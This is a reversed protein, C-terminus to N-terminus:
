VRSPAPVAGASRLHIRAPLRWRARGRWRERKLATEIDLEEEGLDGHPRADVVAIEAPREFIDNGRVMSDMLKVAAGTVFKLVALADDSRRAWFLPTLDSSHDYITM